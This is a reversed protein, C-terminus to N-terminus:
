RRRCACSASSSARSTRPRSMCQTARHRGRRPSGDLLARHAEFSRSQDRWDYFNPASVSQMENGASDCEPSRSSASRSRIRCRDSCCRTSSPSHPRRSASASPSRRPARRDHLRANASVLPGRLPHRALPRPGVLDRPRRARSGQIADRRRVRADRTAARGRPRAGQSEHWRTQMDLHFSLEENLEREFRRPRLWTRLRRLARRILRM